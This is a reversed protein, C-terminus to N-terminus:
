FLNVSHTVELFEFEFYLILYYTTKGQFNIGKIAKQIRM